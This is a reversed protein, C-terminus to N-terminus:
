RIFRERKANQLLCLCQAIKLRQRATMAARNTQMEARIDRGSQGRQQLDNLFSKRDHLSVRTLANKAGQRRQAKARVKTDNFGILTAYLQKMKSIVMDPSLGEGIASTIDSMSPVSM